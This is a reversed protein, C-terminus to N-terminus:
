IGAGEAELFGEGGTLKLFIPELESIESEAQHQLEDMSGLAILKGNLIIGIRDCM